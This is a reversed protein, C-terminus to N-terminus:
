TMPLKSDVVYSVEQNAYRVAEQVKKQEKPKFVVNENTCLVGLVALNHTQFAENWVHFNSKKRAADPRKQAHVAVPALAVLLAFSYLFTKM